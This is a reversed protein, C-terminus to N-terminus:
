LWRHHRGCMHGGCGALQSAPIHGIQRRRHPSVPEVKVQDHIQIAALDDTPLDLVGIIRVMRRARELASCEGLAHVGHDLLGHQMSVVAARERRGVDQNQQVTQADFRRLRARADGVVVGVHLREEFRRLVAGLKGRAPKGGKLVGALPPPVKHVPVVDLVAMAADAVDGRRLAM